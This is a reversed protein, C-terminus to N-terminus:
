GVRNDPYSDYRGALTARMEQSTKGAILGAGLEDFFGELGAPVTILLARAGPEATFAHRTGRPVFVFGGEDVEVDDTGLTFTFSRALVYFAEDHERHVHPPPQIPGVYEIVELAGATQRGSAKLTGLLPIPKGAGSALVLQHLTSM